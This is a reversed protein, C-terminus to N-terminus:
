KAFFSQFHQSHNQPVRFIRQRATGAHIAEYGGGEIEGSNCLYVRFIAESKVRKQEYRKM